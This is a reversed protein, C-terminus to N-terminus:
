WIQVMAKSLGADFIIVYIRVRFQFELPCTNNVLSHM